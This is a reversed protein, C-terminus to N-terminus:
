KDREERIDRDEQVYSESEAKYGNKRIVSIVKKNGQRISRDRRM